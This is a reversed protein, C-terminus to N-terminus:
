SFATAVMARASAKAMVPSAAIFSGACFPM